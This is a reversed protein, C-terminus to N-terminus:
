QDMMLRFDGSPYQMANQIDSVVDNLNFEIRDNWARIATSSSAFSAKAIADLSLLACSEPDPEAARACETEGIALARGREEQRGADIAIQFVSM